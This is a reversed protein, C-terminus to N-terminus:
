LLFYFDPCVDYWLYEESWPHFVRQPHISNLFVIFGTILPTKTLYLYRYNSNTYKTHKIITVYKFELWINNTVSLTNNLNELNLCNNSKSYTIVFYDTAM